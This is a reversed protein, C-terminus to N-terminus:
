NKIKTIIKHMFPQLYASIKLSMLGAFASFINGIKFYLAVGLILFVLTIRLFYTKRIHKLAGAEGLDLADELSRKMHVAMFAALFVGLWLGISVRLLDYGIVLCIIQAAIGYVFIGMFMELLTRETKEIKKM